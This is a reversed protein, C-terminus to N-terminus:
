QLELNFYSNIITMLLQLYKRTTLDELGTQQSGDNESSIKSNDPEALRVLMEDITTIKEAVPSVVVSSQITKQCQGKARKSPPPTSQSPSAFRAPKFRKRPGLDEETNLESDANKSYRVEFRKASEWDDSFLTM